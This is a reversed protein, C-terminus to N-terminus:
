KISDVGGTGGAGADGTRLVVFPVIVEPEMPHDTILELLGEVVPGQFPGARITLQHQKSPVELSGEVTLVDPVARIARVSFVQDSSLRLNTEDGASTAVQLFVEAPSAEIVPVQTVRVPVDLRHEGVAFGIV